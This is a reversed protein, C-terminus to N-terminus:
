QLLKQTFASGFERAQQLNEDTPVFVVRLDDEMLDLKLSELRKRLNPIAEGSWGYSGFLGAPRKQINVADIHSLLVWIPPVADRNITPSGVLFGDSGNLAAALDSMEFDNVDYVEVQADPLKELVGQQISKALLGTNGYASAYFIPIKKHSEKKVASWERYSQQANKLLCNKTLIPGHSTCAYQIDLDKIKDLGKLVYPKFPGFIADYYSKFSLLYKDQYTIKADFLQPECYHSGLFDCSFLIQDEPLWTFMSDPWHLFPANIFQLTKGGLNISEGDKVIQLKLESFNTINKLYIAGAQSTVVTINPNVELLKRISGSHDPENHNMILYDVKDIPVIENVNELYADYYTLHATEILATKDNGKVLYANYSTGYETTMVVDFIRLNPNLVGVYYVNDKIERVM